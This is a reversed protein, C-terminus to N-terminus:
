TNLVCPFKSKCTESFGIHIKRLQMKVMFSRDSSVILLPSISEPNGKCM